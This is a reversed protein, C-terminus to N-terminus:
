RSGPEFMAILSIVSLILLGGFMAWYLKPNRRRDTVGIKGDNLTWILFGIWVISLTAVSVYDM